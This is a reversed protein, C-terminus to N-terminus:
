SCLDSTRLSFTTVSGIVCESDLQRIRVCLTLDLLLSLQCPLIIFIDILINKLIRFNIGLKLLWSNQYKRYLTVKGATYNQLTIEEEKYKLFICLHM